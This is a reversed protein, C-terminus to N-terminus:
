ELFDAGQLYIDKNNGTVTVRKVNGIKFGIMASEGICIFYKGFAESYTLRGEGEFLNHCVIVTSNLLPALTSHNVKM